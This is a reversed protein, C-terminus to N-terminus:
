YQSMQEVWWSRHVNLWLEEATGHVKGSGTCFPMSFCYHCASTCMCIHYQMQTSADQLPPNIILQTKTSFIPYRFILVTNNSTLFDNISLYAGLSLSLSTPLLLALRLLHICTPLCQWTTECALRSAEEGRNKHCSMLHSHLSHVVRQWAVM